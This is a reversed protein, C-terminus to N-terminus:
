LRATKTRFVGAFLKRLKTELEKAAQENELIAFVTPGSGALCANLVGQEEKLMDLLRWVPAYEKLSLGQEFVNGCALAIKKKDGSEIAKIIASVSPHKNVKAVDFNGYIWATKNEPLSIEPTVLVIDLEPPSETRSVVEGRGKAICTKGIVFFACDMGIKTVLALLEEESLGLDWISNLAKVTETANSSSGGLGGVMPIRKDIFIKVGKEVEFEEQVLKAAKFVLNREDCYIEPNSCELIIEKSDLLTFSITDHLELEQMLFSAEHYNDPRKYLLDLVLNLKAFSNAVLTKM